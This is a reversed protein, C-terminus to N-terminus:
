KSKQTGRDNLMRGLYRLKSKGGDRRRMKKNWARAAAYESGYWVTRKGCGCEVKVCWPKALLKPGSLEEPTRGCNRCKLLEPLEKSLQLGKEETLPPVPRLSDDLLYGITTSRGNRRM